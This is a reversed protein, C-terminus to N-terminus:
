SGQEGAPGSQSGSELHLGRTQSADGDVQGRMLYTLEKWVKAGERAHRSCSGLVMPLGSAIFCAMVWLTANLGILSSAGALTVATGGVVLFAVYGSHYGWRELWEIFFNYLVGFLFLCTLVIWSEM